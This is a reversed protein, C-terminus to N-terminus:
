SRLMSRRLKPISELPALLGQSTAFAARLRRRFIKILKSSVKLLLELKMNSVPITRISPLSSLLIQLGRTANHRRYVLEFARTRLYRRRPPRYKYKYVEPVPARDRLIVASILHHCTQFLVHASKIM